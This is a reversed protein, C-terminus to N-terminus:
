NKSSSRKLFPTIGGSEYSLKLISATWSIYFQTSLQIWLFRKYSFSFYYSFLWIIFLRSTRLSSSYYTFIISTSYNGKQNNNISEKQPQGDM